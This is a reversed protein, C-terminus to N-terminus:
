LLMECSSLCWFEGIALDEVGTDFLGDEAFEERLTRVVRSLIEQRQSNQSSLLREMLSDNNVNTQQPICIGSDKSPSPSSSQSNVDGQNSPRARHKNTQPHLNNATNSNFQKNNASTNLTNSPLRKETPSNSHQPHSNNNGKSNGQTQNDNNNKETPNQYGQTSPSHALPLYPVPVMQMIGTSPDQVLTFQVPVNGPPVGGPFPVPMGPMNSALPAINNQMSVLNSAMSPMNPVTAINTSATSTNTAYQSGQQPASPNISTVPNGSMTQSPHHVNAHPIQNMQQAPNGWYQQNHPNVDSPKQTISDSPKPPAATAVNDSTKSTEASDTSGGGIHTRLYQAIATALVDTSPLQGKTQMQKLASSIEASEDASRTGAKEPDKNSADVNSHQQKVADKEDKNSAEPAKHKLLNHKIERLKAVVDTEKLGSITTSESQLNSKPESKSTNEQIVIPKFHTAPSSFASPVRYPDKAPKAKVTVPKFASPPDHQETPKTASKTPATKTKMASQPIVTDDVNDDFPIDEINDELESHNGAALSQTTQTNDSSFEDWSNQSRTKSDQDTTVEGTSSSVESKNALQLSQVVNQQILLIRLFM